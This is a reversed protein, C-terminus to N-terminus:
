REATASSHKEAIPFAVQLEFIEDVESRVWRLLRKKTASGCLRYLGIIDLGRREVEEVCRRLIIPVPACGPAGKSERTVVTELDAGFLAPM